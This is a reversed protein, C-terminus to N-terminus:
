PIELASREYLDGLAFHSLYDESLHQTLAVPLLTPGLLFIRSYDREGSDTRTAENLIVTSATLLVLRTTTSEVRRLFARQAEPHMHDVGYRCISLGPRACFLFTRTSDRPVPVIVLHPELARWAALINEWNLTSM